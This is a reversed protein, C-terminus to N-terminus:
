VDLSDEMMWVSEADRELREIERAAWRRDLVLGPASARELKRVAARLGDLADRSRTSGDIARAQAIIWESCFAAFGRSLPSVELARTIWVPLDREEGGWAAGGCRAASRRLGRLLPADLFAVLASPELESWVPDAGGEAQGSALSALSRLCRVRQLLRALGPRQASPDVGLVGREGAWQQVRVADILLEDESLQEVQADVEASWAGGSGDEADLLILLAAAAGGALPSSWSEVDRLRPVGVSWAQRHAQVSDAVSRELDARLAAWEWGQPVGDRDEGRSRWAATARDIRRRTEKLDRNVFAHYRLSSGGAEGSSEAM